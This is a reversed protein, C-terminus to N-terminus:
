GKMGLFARLRGMMRPSTSGLGADAAAGNGATATENSKQRATMLRTLGERLAPQNELVPDLHDKDLEFVVTDIRAVVDASRPQETLLSMEGFMDGPRMRALSVRTGDECRHVVDLVGEAVLFLSRGSDGQRVACTGARLERRIMAQALHGIDDDGFDELLPVGRLLAAAIQSDESGRRKGPTVGAARPRRRSTEQKPRALGIGARELHDLVAGAVRDRIVAGQPYSPVWFRLTYSVGNPTLADVVVDPAPDSLVEATCVMASILIRRAHAHPIDQDLVVPMLLRMKPEPRSLNTIRSGAIGGNPVVVMQGDLTELRTARWNIEEVRGIVGGGVDVWEGLRFPHELNLAIGAFIDAFVNRLAFGIVAIVVGSTAVLGSVPQEFVFALIGVLAVAYFVAHLLDSLLRPIHAGRGSRGVPPLITDLLRSTFWAGALWAVTQCGASVMAAAPLPLPWPHRAAYAALATVLGPVILYRLAALM